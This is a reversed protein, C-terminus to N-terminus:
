DIAYLEYRAGAHQWLAPLWDAEAPEPEPPDLPGGYEEALRGAGWTSGRLIYREGDELVLLKFDLPSVDSRCGLSYAFTLEGIQDADVDTVELPGRVQAALAPDDSRPNDFTASAEAQAVDATVFQAATDFECDEVVDDVDRLRRSEGGAFVHHAAFLRTTTGAEGEEVSTSLVALNQGNADDWSAAAVPTGSVEVGAEAVAAVPDPLDRLDGFADPADAAATEAPTAPATASPSPAPATAPAAPPSAAAAATAAPSPPASSPAAAEEGAAGSCGVLLALGTAVVAGRARWTRHM